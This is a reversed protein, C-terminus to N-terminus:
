STMEIMDTDYLLLPEKLENLTNSCPNVDTSTDNSSSNTNPRSFLKGKQHNEKASLMARNAEEIEKKEWEIDERINEITAKVDWRNMDLYARRESTCLSAFQMSIVQLKYEKSNMDQKPLVLSTNLLLKKGDPGLVSSMSQLPILLKPPALILNTGTFQNTRQLMNVKTKYRLSIGMLTDTPLVTHYLYDVGEKFMPEEKKKADGDIVTEGDESTDPCEKTIQKRVNVITGLGPVISPAATSASVQTNVHGSIPVLKWENTGADCHWQLGKPLLAVDNNSSAAVSMNDYRGVPGRSVDITQRKWPLTGGDAMTLRANDIDASIFLLM